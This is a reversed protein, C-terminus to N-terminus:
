RTTEIEAEESDDIISKAPPTVLVKDVRHGDMDVIEFLHNSWEFREAVEPFRGLHNIIFGALTQYDNKDDNDFDSINLLDQFDEIPLTGDVLFSGDEREVISPEYEHTQSPLQGFVAEVIDNVTVLGDLAGYEDVVLAVHSNSERFRDLVATAPVTGPVVLPEKIVSELDVKGTDVLQHWLDKISVIGIVEDISERGVPFYTHGSEAMAKWANKDFHKLDIWVIDTRHTMLSDVRRDGFRFVREIMEKEAEEVVGAKEGQELMIKIEEESVPLEQTIPIRLVRMAVDASWSFLSVIPYSIIMTARIPVALLLTIAESHSLAWRKPVLEGLILTIYTISVVVVAFSIVTAHQSIYPIKEFYPVLSEAITAGGVAGSLVGILTVATQITSLFHEPSKLLELAVKARRDGAKYLEQLRSERISVFAMEAMVFLANIGTLVLVFVIQILM